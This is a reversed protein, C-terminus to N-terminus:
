KRDEAGSAVPTTALVAPKHMDMTDFLRGELDYSRMQLTRGNVAFYLFHHSRKGNAMFPTRTRQFEELGGGSGGSTVYVTGENPEVTKGGRMPWSREYIHIHGYMVLDVKYKDYLEALTRHKPDGYTSKNQKTTDGHDDIDSSWIPHHHCAIKWTAKSKALEKDLWEYQESGRTVPRNSDLMFVQVNGYTFTYCYEPAPLKFYDYYWNADEDHNGLVPYVPAYSLLDQWPEFWREKWQHKITGTSTIDGLHLHFNPRHAVAQAALKRSVDPQDQSDGCVTFAFADDDHIMTKFQRIESVIPEGSAPTTRVRYFYSTARDLGAITATHITEGAAKVSQGLEVTPGYEVVSDGPVTTEWVVSVGDNTPWQLFPQLFLEPKVNSFDKVPVFAALAPEQAFAAAIQEPTAVADDLSVQRLRGKMPFNEDADAYAGVVLATDDPYRIDGSQERSERQLKGDVYLRMTAGDYSGVVHHWKGMTLPKRDTLYTIKGDADDVGKSALGFFFRDGKYGLIWGTEANGNDQICSVIGGWDEPRDISVWASVTIARSPLNAVQDKISPLVVVRTSTGDFALADASGYPAVAVPGDISACVAGDSTPWTRGDRDIDSVNMQRPAAIALTQVAMALLAAIRPAMVQPTARQM